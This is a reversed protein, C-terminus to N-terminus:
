RSPCLIALETQYGSSQSPELRNVNSYFFSEFFFFRPYNCGTFIPLIIDLCKRRSRREVTRLACFYIFLLSFIGIFNRLVFQFLTFVLYFFAKEFCRHYKIIRAKTKDETFSPSKSLYIDRDKKNYRTKIFLYNNASM